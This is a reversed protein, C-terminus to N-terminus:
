ADDVTRGPREPSLVLVNQLFFRCNSQRRLPWYVRNRSRSQEIWAVALSPLVGCCAAVTAPSKGDGAPSGPRAMARARFCIGWVETYSESGKRYQVRVRRVISRDVEIMIRAGHYRIAPPLFTWSGPRFSQACGRYDRRDCDRIRGPPLDSVRRRLLGSSFRPARGAVAGTVVIGFGRKVHARLAVALLRHEGVM